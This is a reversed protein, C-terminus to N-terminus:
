TNASATESISCSHPGAKGPTHNNGPYAPGRKTHGPKIIPVGSTGGIPSSTGGVTTRARLSGVGGFPPAIISGGETQRCVGRAPHHHATWWGGKKKERETQELRARGTCIRAAGITSSAPWVQREWRGVVIRRWMSSRKGPGHLSWTIWMR